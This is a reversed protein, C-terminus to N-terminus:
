SGEQLVPSYEHINTFFVRNDPVFLISIINYVLNYAPWIIM